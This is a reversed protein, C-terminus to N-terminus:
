VICWQYPRTRSLEKMTYLQCCLSPCVNWVEENASVELEDLNQTTTFIIFRNHVEKDSDFAYFPKRGITAKLEDPVNLISISFPNPIHAVVAEPQIRSVMTRQSPM